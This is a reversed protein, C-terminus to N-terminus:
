KVRRINVNSVNPLKQLLEKMEKAEKKTDCIPAKTGTEVFYNDYCCKSVWLDGWCGTCDMNENEDTDHNYITEFGNQNCYPCPYKKM